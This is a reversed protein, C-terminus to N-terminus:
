PCPQFSTTHISGIELQNRRFLSANSDFPILLGTISTVEIARLESSALIERKCSGDSFHSNHVGEHKAKGPWSM